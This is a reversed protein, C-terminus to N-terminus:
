LRGVIKKMTKYRWREGRPSDPMVQNMVRVIANPGEGSEHLERILELAEQEAPVPELLTPKDKDEQPALRYGYPAFRGMREGNRQRQLMAYSTRCAIMKRDFESISALIQRILTQTPGHGDVDGTVAEITAGKQEVARNIQEALYVNRALRDQKFVLLVSGRTLAEIASWLTPRYEDKGSVDPDHFTNVIEYENKVAHRKCIAEQIECSESKDAHRRPSFRTYIVAKKM